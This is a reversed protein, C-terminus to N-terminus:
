TPGIYVGQGIQATADIIATAHIEPAPHFPRYFLKIAHAFTLRPESTALWAIGRQTAQQQLTEDRPLILASAATKEVMSAFKPGEIYSLTGSTAEKIAAVGAIDPNNNNNTTLSHESVLPSLKEVIEQFKM